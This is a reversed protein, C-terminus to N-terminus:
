VEMRQEFMYDAREVTRAPLALTYPTILVKGKVVGNAQRVIM